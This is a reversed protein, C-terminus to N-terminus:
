KEVKIAVQKHAECDDCYCDEKDENQVNRYGTYM